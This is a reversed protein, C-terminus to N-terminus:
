LIEAAAKATWPKEKLRRDGHPIINETRGKGTM